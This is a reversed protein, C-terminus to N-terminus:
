GEVLRVAGLSYYAWLVGYRRCISCNCQTVETPATEIAFGVAGCHCSTRIM